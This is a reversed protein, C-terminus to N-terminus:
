TELVAAILNEELEENGLRFRRVARALQHYKSSSRNNSVVLPIEIYGVKAVFKEVGVDRDDVLGLAILQEAVDPGLNGQMHTLIECVTDHDFIPPLTHVMQNSIIQMFSVDRPLERLADLVGTEDQLPLNRLRSTCQKKVQDEPVQLSENESESSEPPTEMKRRRRRRKQGDKKRSRLERDMKLKGGGQVKAMKPIFHLEEYLDDLYPILADSLEEPCIAAICKEFARVDSKKGTLEDAALNLFGAGLMTYVFETGKNGALIVQDLCFLSTALSLPVSWAQNWLPRLLTGANTLDSSALRQVDELNRDTLWLSYVLDYLGAVMVVLDECNDLEDEFVHCIAISLYIVLDSVETEVASALM